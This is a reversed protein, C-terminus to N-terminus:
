DFNIGIELSSPDGDVEGQVKEDKHNKRNVRLAEVNARAMQERAEVTEMSGFPINSEKLAPKAFLRPESSGPTLFRQVPDDIREKGERSFLKLSNDLQQPCTTQESTAQNM